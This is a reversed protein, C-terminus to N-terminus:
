KVVLVYGSKTIERGAFDTYSVIWYYTGSVVNAADWAIDQDTSNYVTRGWRNFITLRKLYVGLSLSPKFVDNLNNEDPSIVNPFELESHCIIHEISITDSNVCGFESTVEVWYIGPETVEIFSDINGTNWFSTGETEDSFLILTDGFCLDTDTGLNVNPDAFFSIHITDSKTTCEGIVQVWYSGSDAVSLIPKSSSDSWLYSAGDLSADLTIAQGQCLITDNGLIEDIASSTGFFFNDVQIWNQIANGNPMSVTIFKGNNPAIFTFTRQNWLPDAIPATYIISGLVNDATSLGIQVNGPVINPNQQCHRDFFSVTYEEGQTLQASIELSIVDTEGGTLAVYWCGDQAYGCYEDTRIIDMNGNSGFAISYNM